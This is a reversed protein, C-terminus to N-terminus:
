IGASRLALIFVPLDVGCAVLSKLMAELMDLDVSATNVFAAASLEGLCDIRHIRPVRVGLHTM